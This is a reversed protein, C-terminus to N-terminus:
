GRCHHYHRIGRITNSLIAGKLLYRKFPLFLPLGLDRLSPPIIHQPRHQPHNVNGIGRHKHETTGYQMEALVIPSLSLRSTLLTTKLRARTGYKLLRIQTQTERLADLVTSDLDCSWDSPKLTISVVWRVLSVWRIKECRDKKSNHDRGM